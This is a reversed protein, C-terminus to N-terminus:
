SVFLASAFLLLNESGALAPQGAIGSEFPRPSKIISCESVQLPQRRHPFSFIWEDRLIL